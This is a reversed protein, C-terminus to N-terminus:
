KFKEEGKWNIIPTLKKVIKISEEQAKMVSVINKYADPAEDLTGIQVTGVIGTMSKQFNTMTIEKRAQHRSMRRGAGHSSSELFENNGLGEVLYCGDRMTGPIVGREDKKAPTAGKRHIFYNGNGFIKSYSEEKIAHNHNKNVWMEWEIKEHLISEICEVVTKAMELRNLLAFELCFDLVNLYEQGLKSDIKLPFTEEFKTDKGASKIMYKTAIKHGMNRSGSHIVLWAESNYYEIEIFHNGEGLTGLNSPAKRKLFDLIEPDYPGSSFKAFLENFKEITERHINNQANLRGLGMPVRKKVEDYIALKNEQIKALTDKGKLRVATVGCGIDYGVWAPVVYDKTLFVAGIPAVYGSHADPMLAGKVVFDQDFCHKFQNLTNEDIDDAYIKYDKESSMKVNDSAVKASKLVKEKKVVKVM